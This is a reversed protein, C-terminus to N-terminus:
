SGGVTSRLTAPVASRDGTLRVRDTPRLGHKRLLAVGRAGLLYKVFAAAAAPQPARNLVTVTYTAALAVPALSVTPVKAETAESSYFFGADLQGAQLRGLLTEEPYVGSDSGALKSLGVKALAQATLRGKPDLKPDTRGLRFGPQDIVQQWPKSKLQAAFRSKPNYGLVLPATAFTAYWSEWDGNAGGRLKDNTATSASVFVDGRTVKGKIENVLADSGKGQGQFTDAGAAEFGPKVDHEMLNVLSGAYLVTVTAGSGPADSTGSSGGAGAGSGASGCGALLAVLALVSAALTVRTRVRRAM